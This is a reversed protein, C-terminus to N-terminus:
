FPNNAARNRALAGLQKQLIAANPHLADAWLYTSAATDSVLTATSCTLLSGTTNLGTLSWSDTNRHDDDCAMDVHNYSTSKHYSRAYVDLEVLGIKTGDNLLDLDLGTNFADSLDTLLDQADSGLAQAYPTLGIDNLHSVIVRAGTAAIRNVQAAARQGRAKAEALKSARDPYSDDDAYVQLVDHLGVLVTAMDQSGLGGQLDQQFDDVQQTVDAVTAGYAARMFAKLESSRLGDPNCQSFTVGYYSALYQVWVWQTSDSCNVTANTADSSNLANVGYHRANAESSSDDLLSLEDGFVVLRDAVFPDLRSVSGGCAVLVGVSVLALAACLRRAIRSFNM